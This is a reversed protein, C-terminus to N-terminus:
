GSEGVSEASSAFLHVTCGFRDLILQTFDGRYGGMDFVIAEPSLEYDLRYTTDGNQQKWTKRARYADRNIIHNDLFRKLSQKFPM